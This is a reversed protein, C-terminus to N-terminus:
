SKKYKQKLFEAYNMVERWMEDTVETDGGFLAVKLAEDSTESISGDLQEPSVQLIYCIRALTDHNFVHAGTEIDQITKVDVGLHKSFQEQTLNRAIRYHSINKALVSTMKGRVTLAPKKKIDSKGLLYDIDCGFFSSIQELTSLSPEREGREYMNISSKSLGMRNAFEQQSLGAEQRLARLQKNFNPM